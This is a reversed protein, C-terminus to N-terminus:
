GNPADSEVEAAWLVWEVTRGEQEYLKKPVQHFSMGKLSHSTKDTINRLLAAMRGWESPVNLHVTQYTHLMWKHLLSTQQCEIVMRGLHGPVKSLCITGDTGIEHITKDQEYGILIRGVGKGTFIYSGVLPHFIAGSLDLFSYTTHDFPNFRDWM